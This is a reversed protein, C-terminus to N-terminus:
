ELYWSSKEHELSKIFLIYNDRNVCVRHLLQHQMVCYETENSRMELARRTGIQWNPPHLHSLMMMIHGSFNKNSIDEQGLILFWFLFRLVSSHRKLLCTRWSAHTSLLVLTTDCM